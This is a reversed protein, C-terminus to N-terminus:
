FEALTKELLEYFKAAHYGDMLAHHVQLNVSIRARAGDEVIKGWAIRPICDDKGALPHTIATFDIWPMCSLYIWQDEGAIEDDLATQRKAAAVTEHCLANFSPWDDVFSTQCFAFGDGGIPVTFSAHVIDHEIVTEGRFRTRFEPIANVTKMLCFLTVNFISLGDARTRKRAATIDVPATLSFHPFEQGRFLLYQERRPWTDLTIVKGDM